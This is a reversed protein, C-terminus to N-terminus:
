ATAGRAKLGQSILEAALDYREQSLVFVGAIGPITSFEVLLDRAIALGESQEDSSKRLRERIADPVSMGPVENHLYEADEYGRLPLLAAIVPVGASRAHELFPAMAGAEFVPQTVAFDAGASVKEDLKACEAALERPVPNVAAGIRFRTRSEIDAGGHDRGENLDRLIRTLGLATVDFVSTAKPFDGINSPDGTLAVIAPIGLAAAGLLESQLGLLNRDRCSYHLVAPVGTERMIVHAVAMGSMRLRATPNDTVHVADAGSSALLRAAALAASLDVGRPPSIEATVVFSTGLKRRFADTKIEGTGTSASPRDVVRAPSPADKPRGIRAHIPKGAAESAMAAIHMPTTGCCGGVITAGLDVFARAFRAFYEPSSAYITADDIRHPYGANPMLSVPCDFLSIVPAIAEYIARPGVACNLGVADAGAERLRLLAPLLEDGQATRGDDLVSLSVLLPTTPAARRAAALAILAEAVDGFTELLLLDPGAAALAAAHERFVDEAEARDIAGIPRMLGGLPGISGAVYARGGAARRAIAVGAANIEAVRGGLEHLGLKLRNAAFTNSEIVEAGADVYERHAHEVVDAADLNFSEVCTSAGGRRGFLLTGMAGDALLTRTSWRKSIPEM